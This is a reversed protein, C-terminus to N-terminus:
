GSSRWQPSHIILQDTLEDDSEESMYEINIQKWRLM